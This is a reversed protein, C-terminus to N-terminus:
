TQIKLQEPEDFPTLDTTPTLGKTYNEKFNTYNDSGFWYQLVNYDNNYYEAVTNDTAKAQRLANLLDYDTNKNLEKAYDFGSGIETKVVEPVDLNQSYWFRKKFATTSLGLCKSVYKAIYAKCAEKSAIRSATTYGLQFSNINYIPLGDTITLQHLHKTKEFYAKSAIGNKKTAWSCCVKDTSMFDLGDKKISTGNLGILMHFHLVGKTADDFEIEFEYEEEGLKLKVKHREPVIVYTLNPFKERLYHCYRSFKKYVIEDNNRDMKKKDFTFTCFYDFDNMELLMMLLIRTRNVSQTLSYKCLKTDYYEIDGTELNMRYRFGNYDFPAYKKKVPINKKNYITILTKDKYFRECKILSYKKQLKNDM